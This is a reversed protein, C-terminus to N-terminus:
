DFLRLQSRSVSRARCGAPVVCSSRPVFNNGQERLAKAVAGVYGDTVKYKMAIKTFSMSSEIIDKEIALRRDNKKIGAQYDEARGFRPRETFAVGQERLDTAIQGIRSCNTYGYKESISTFSMTTEIIDREIALRKQSKELPKRPPIEVGQDRLWKAISQVYLLPVECQFAITEYRDNTDSLSTMVELKKDPPDRRGQPRDPFAIGQRKLKVAIQQVRQKSIGHTEAIRSYNDNSRTIAEVVPSNSPTRTTQNPGRARKPYSTEKTEAVIEMQPLREIEAMLEPSPRFWEGRSRDGSFREHLDRELGTEGATVKLVTLKGPSATGLTKIRSSPSKSYGIKILKTEECQIFYVAM